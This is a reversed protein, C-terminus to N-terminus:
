KGPSKNPPSKKEAIDIPDYDLDIDANRRTMIPSGKSHLQSAVSERRDAEDIADDDLNIGADRNIAVFTEDRPQGDSAYREDLGEVVSKMFDGVEVEWAFYMLDSHIETQLNMSTLFNNTTGFLSETVFIVADYRNLGEKVKVANFKDFMAMFNKETMDVFEIVREPTIWTSTKMGLGQLAQKSVDGTKLDPIAGLFEEREEQSGILLIRNLMKAKPM